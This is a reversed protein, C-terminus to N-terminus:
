ESSGTNLQSLFSWTIENNPSPSTSHPGVSSFIPKDDVKYANMAEVFDAVRDAKSADGRGIISMRNGGSFNLTNITLGDPMTEAAARLSNLAAYRLAIQQEQIAIRAQLEQVKKVTPEIVAIKQEVESKQFRLFELWGFYLVVAVIYITFAAGLGRLWLGDVFKQQYRAIFEAPVLNARTTEKAAGRASATALEAADMPKIVDIPRDSLPKLVPLWAEATATDAVLHWKPPSTLWGELEGAWMGKRVEGGLEVAWHEPKTLNALSVAQLTGAYWWAILCFANEGSTQPHVWIGDDKIDSALLQHLFPPEMRDTMYGAKELAGLQAEVVSRPAILVLVTQTESPTSGKHPVLDLTWVIQTLPLPSIRELQFEVMSFLEDFSCKPLQLVRLFVQEVPLLTINLKPQWLANWSKESYRRRAPPAVNGSRDTSLSVNGGSQVGFRWFRPTEVAIEQVNCHSPRAM